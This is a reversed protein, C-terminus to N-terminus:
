CIRANSVSVPALLRPLFGLLVFGAFALRVNLAAARLRIAAACRLRHAATLFAAFYFGDLVFSFRLGFDPYALASSDFAM